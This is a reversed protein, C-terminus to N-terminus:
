LKKVTVNPYSENIIPDIIENRQENTLDECEIDESYGCDVLDVEESTSLKLEISIKM